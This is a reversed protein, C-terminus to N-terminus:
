DAGFLRLAEAPVTMGKRLLFAAYQRFTTISRGEVALAKIRQEAFEQSVAERLQEDMKLVELVPIRGLFGTGHCQPCGIGKFLSHAEEYALIEARDLARRVPESYESREKCVPCIRRVLRQGVSLDVAHSVLYPACGMERLRLVAEVAGEAHVGAMVMQGTLSADLAVQAAEPDRLISMMIVDPDQNLLGALLEPYTRGPQSSVQVQTAGALTCRIPDELTVLNQDPTAEMRAQCLAYLTTTKGAGTPGSVLIAGAPKVLAKHVVDALGGSLLVEELPVLATGPDVVRLVAKEGRSTPLVSVRMDYLKEKVRFSAQGSQHQHHESIDLNGLVKVRSILPGHMNMTLGECLPILRGDVRLRVNMTEAGPEVHIATARQNVAGALLENLLAVVKEGPVEGMRKTMQEASVVVVDRPSVGKVARMPGTVKSREATLGLAPRIVEDLYEKYDGGDCMMPRLRVGPMAKRLAEVAADDTPRTMAVVLTDGELEAPPLVSYLEPNFTKGQLRTANYSLQRVAARLQLALNRAMTLGVQPLAMVIREFAENSLLACTTQETARATAMQEECLLMSLEGFSGRPGIEAITQELGVGPQEQVQVVSGLVVFYLSDGRVGQPLITAGKSFTKIVMASAIRELSGPDVGAFIETSALFSVLQATDQSHSM